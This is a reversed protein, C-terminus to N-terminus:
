ARDRARGITYVQVCFSLRELIFAFSPREQPEPHWCSTMIEYVPKPCNPPPELRGGSVVLSMVNRNACGTYPMYGLSMVEWLLVGYSRCDLLVKLKKDSNLLNSLVGALRTRLVWWVDTKTTFIGDLFAEPPMWKIPLM